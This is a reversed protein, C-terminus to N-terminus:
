AAAIQAQSRVVEVEQWWENKQLWARYYADPPLAKGEEILERLNDEIHQAHEPLYPALRYSVGTVFLARWFSLPSSWDPVQETVCHGLQELAGAARRCITVLEPDVAEAYGFDPCFLLRREKPTSRICERYQIGPAPLSYPDREDSAALVDLVTAVEEVTRGLPGIHQLGWNPGTPYNPVRGYSPKFGAIGSTRAFL